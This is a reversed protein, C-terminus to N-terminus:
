AARKRTSARAATFFGLVAGEEVRLLGGHELRARRLCRRMRPHFDGHAYSDIVTPHIYSKRCIAATNNLSAAVREIAARVRRRGQAESRPPGSEFLLMAASVTAAWTRFEKATFPHNTARRIYDNVDTSSVSHPRENHDFYQFLRQGPIDVCRRVINALRKDRVAAHYPKGSKGRFDLEVLSGEIRAHRTLLTTLGYSKNTREYRDNGVRAHTDDMLQIVTAVVKEKTLGHVSLDVHVQERLISLSSAFSLIDHYKAHDRVRRWASHYRYQKRGRADLGTAQIHGHPSSCIWVERWAPPIVLAALRRM